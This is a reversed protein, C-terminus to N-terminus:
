HLLQKRYMHTFQGTTEDSPIGGFALEQRIWAGLGYESILSETLYGVEISKTFFARIKKSMRSKGTKYRGTRARDLGLFFELIHRRKYVSVSQDYTLYM